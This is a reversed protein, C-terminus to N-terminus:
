PSRQGKALSRAIVGAVAARRGKTEDYDIKQRTVKVKYGRVTTETPLTDALTLRDLADVIDEPSLFEIPADAHESRIRKEIADRRKRDSTIFFIRSFGSKLCKTLNVIEHDAGTKISIECAVSLSDRRLVVDARGTSAADEIIARFGREEALRKVLHQLYKHEQGGRGMPVPLDPPLPQRGRAGKPARAPAAESGEISADNNVSTPEAILESRSTATPPSVPVIVEESRERLQERLESVPVAFAERSLAIVASRTQDGNISDTGETPFTRLNCDNAASGFRVIAEGRGLRQLDKVEFSAFGNALSRADDDGVRFVVRTYANGLLASKVGPAGELQSLTQSALILGVGYKRGETLLSALSPTVFHQFEDVYVFFQRRESQPM